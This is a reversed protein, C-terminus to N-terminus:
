QEPLNELIAKGIILIRAAWKIVFGVVAGFTIKNSM